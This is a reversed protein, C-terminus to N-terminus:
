CSIGMSLCMSSSCPADCYMVGGDYVYFDCYCHGNHCRAGVLEGSVANKGQIQKMEEDSLRKGIKIEDLRKM